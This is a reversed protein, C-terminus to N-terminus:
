LSCRGRRASVMSSVAATTVVKPADAAVWQTPTQGREDRLAGEPPQPRPQHWPSPALAQPPQRTVRDDKSRRHSRTGRWLGIGAWIRSVIALTLSPLYAGAALVTLPTEAALVTVASSAGTLVGLWGLLVPWERQSIIAL